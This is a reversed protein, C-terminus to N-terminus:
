QKDIKTSFATLGFLNGNWKYLKGWECYIIKAILGRTNYSRNEYEFLYWM